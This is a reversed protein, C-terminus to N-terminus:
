PHGPLATPETSNKQCSSLDLPPSHVALVAILLCAQANPLLREEDEREWNERRRAECVTVRDDLDFEKFSTPLLEEEEHADVVDIGSGAAASPAASPSTAEADAAAAKVALTRSSFASRNHRTTTESRLLHFDLTRFAARPLGPAPMRVSTALATAAAAQSQSASLAPLSLLRM